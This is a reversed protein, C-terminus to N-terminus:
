AVIKNFAERVQDITFHKRLIDCQKKQEEL